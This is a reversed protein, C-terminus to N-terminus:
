NQIRTIKVSNHKVTVQLQKMELLLLMKRILKRAMVFNNFKSMHQKKCSLKSNTENILLTNICITHFNTEHKRYPIHVTEGQMKFVLEQFM